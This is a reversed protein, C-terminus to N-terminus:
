PSFKIKTSAILKNTVDLDSGAFIFVFAYINNTTVLVVERGGRKVFDARVFPIASIQGSAEGDIHQFGEAENARIVKRMYRPANRQDEPYYALADAYFVTLSRAWFLSSILGQDGLAQVTVLLPTSGPTGKMEPAQLHLNEAPTFELGISVNKYTGQEILGKTPLVNPASTTANTPSQPTGHKSWSLPTAAVLTIALVLAKYDWM